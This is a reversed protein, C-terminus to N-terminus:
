EVRQRLRKMRGIAFDYEIRHDMYSMLAERYHRIAGADDDSGEAWLGLATHGTLLNEPSDGMRAPVSVERAPDLLHRSLERYWPDAISEYFAKLRDHAKATEGKKNLIEPELLGLSLKGANTRGPRALYQRSYELATNWEEDVAAYFAQAILITSNEPDIEHLHKLLSRQTKFDTQNRQFALIIPATKARLAERAAIAQELRDEFAQMQTQYYQHISRDAPQLMRWRQIRDLRSLALYLSWDDTDANLAATELLSWAANMNERRIEVLGAILHLWSKETLSYGGAIAEGANVEGALIKTLYGSFEDPSRWDLATLSNRYDETLEREEFWDILLIMLRAMTRGSDISLVQEFLHRGAGHDGACLHMVAAAMVMPPTRIEEIARDALDCAGGWDRRRATDMIQKLRPESAVDIEGNWKVKGARIEDLFAAAKTIPLVLGIDSLTTAVPIPGKALKVVVISALGIVRGQVDIFPGGSNGPHLSTDVQFMNEFTRRVHGSTVSVNVTEAQTRSGLPFGLTILPTLKPISGTRLSRALPLPQLGPPVTNIKLVAYDDRLPSHVQELTRVPAPAVGAIWVRQPGQTSFASGTVYLDEVEHSDALAPLRHFARQGDFWLYLQYGFQLEKHHHEALGILMAMREDELWPCAVHRNTLLHGKEDALFATGEARNRYIKRDGSQLWYDVVVFAVSGAYKNAYGMLAAESDQRSAYFHYWFVGGAAIVIVLLVAMLGLRLNVRRLLARPATRTEEKHKQEAAQIAWDEVQALTAAVDAMSRPRLEPDESLMLRILTRVEAPVPLDELRSQFDVVGPDACLIEVFAKGLSWIDSHRDLPRRHIIDPHMAILRALMPGPRDLQPDLFRSLKYDVKIKLTGADDEYVLIDDLILHPIIHGIRHLGDLISAIQGFLQLTTRFDKLRGSSLLTGWNLAEVWESIRYWLGDTSQRIALHRVFYTDPLAQLEELEHKLRDALSADVGANPSFIRIMVPRDEGDRRAKCLTSSYGEHLVELIRFDDIASRGAVMGAGCSPCVNVKEAVVQGCQTCFKM